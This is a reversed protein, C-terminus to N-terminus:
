RMFCGILMWSPVHLRSLPRRHMRQHRCLPYRFLCFVVEGDLLAMFYGPKGVVVPTFSCLRETPFEVIGETQLFLLIARGKEGELSFFEENDLMSGFYSVFEHIRFLFAPFKLM